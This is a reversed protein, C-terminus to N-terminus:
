PVPRNFKEQKIVASIKRAECHYLAGGYNVRAFELIDKRKTFYLNGGLGGPNLSMGGGVLEWNGKSGCDLVNLAALIKNLEPKIENRLGRYYNWDIAIGKKGKIIIRNVYYSSRILFEKIACKQCESGLKTIKFKYGGYDFVVKGYKGSKRGCGCKAM